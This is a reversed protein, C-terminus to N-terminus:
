QGNQRIDQSSPLSLRVDSSVEDTVLNEQVYDAFAIMDWYDFQKASEEWKDKPQPYGSKKYIEETTM